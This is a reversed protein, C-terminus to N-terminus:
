QDYAWRMLLKERQKRTEYVLKAPETGMNQKGFVLRTNNISADMTTIVGKGNATAMVM